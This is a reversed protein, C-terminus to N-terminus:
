QAESLMKKLAPIMLTAGDLSLHSADQYYSTNATGMLCRDSDCYLDDFNIVSLRGVSLSKKFVSVVYAQSKIHQARLVSMKQLFKDAEYRDKWANEYVTSPLYEQQPIQEIVHLRVDLGAYSKVTNAFGWEFAKRTNEVSIKEHPQLGIANIFRTGRWYDTYHSWKAVLFVDKIGHAKVYAFVRANLAHCDRSDQDVRTLPHVGLLPACGSFGAILGHRSTHRAAARFAELLQLAHSDGFLVFDPKLPPDPNITCFWNDTRIHAGEIDFCVKYGPPPLFANAVNVPVVGIKGESIQKGVISVLVLTLICILAACLTRAPGMTSMRRVPQEVLKWTLFALFFTLAILGFRGETTLPHVSLIRSTAFLPQHWLYASYSVLGIWVFVRTSLLRTALTNDTGYLLILATGLTPLLICISPSPTHHDFVLIAAVIALLGTASLAQRAIMSNVRLTETNSKALLATLSGIMLEWVRGSTQFFNQGQHHRWGFECLELSTIAVLLLILPLFRGHLRRWFLQIALPFVLYYQEEIALSWTHLLLKEDSAGDFYGTSGALLFNSYFLSVSTMLESYNLQRTPAMLSFVLALGAILVVVLAPLIRRARRAYFDQLSFSGQELDKVILRTILFGSLVFFVDVGVFGGSFVEFGAHFFIVSVVALARLGDVDPRYDNVSLHKM